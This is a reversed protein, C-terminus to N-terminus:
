QKLDEICADAARRAAEGWVYVYLDLGSDGGGDEYPIYEEFSEDKGMYAELVGILSEWDRMNSYSCLQRIVGKDVWGEAVAKTKADSNTMMGHLYALIDGKLEKVLLYDAAEYLDVVDQCTKLNDSLSSPGLSVYSLLSNFTEPSIEPLQLVKNAATLRASFTYLMPSNTLLFTIPLTFVIQDPGVLLTVQKRSLDQKALPSPSTSVSAPHHQKHRKVPRHNDPPPSSPPTTTAERALM